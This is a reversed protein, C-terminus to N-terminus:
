SWHGGDYSILCDAEYEEEGDFAVYGFLDNFGLSFTGYDEDCDNVNKIIQCFLRYVESEFTKSSLTFPKHKKSKYLNSSNDDLFARLLVDEDDYSDTGLYHSYPIKLDLEDSSIKSFLASFLEPYKEEMQNAANQSVDCILKITDNTPNFDDDNVGLYQWKIYVHGM